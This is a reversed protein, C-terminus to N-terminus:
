RAEYKTKFPKHSATFEPFARMFRYMSNKSDLIEPFQKFVYAGLLEPMSICHKLEEGDSMGRENKQSAIMDKKQDMFDQMEQWARQDHKLITNIYARVAVNVDTTHALEM